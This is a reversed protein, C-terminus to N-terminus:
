THSNLGGQGQEWNWPHAQTVPDVACIGEDATDTAGSLDKVFSDKNLCFRAQKTPETHLLKRALTYIM